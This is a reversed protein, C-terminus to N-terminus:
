LRSIWKFTAAPWFGGNLRILLNMFKQINVRKFSGSIDVLFAVNKLCVLM